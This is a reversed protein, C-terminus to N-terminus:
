DQWFDTIGANELKLFYDAREEATLKRLAQNESYSTINFRYYSRDPYEVKCWGYRNSVEVVKGTKENHMSQVIDGVEPDHLM